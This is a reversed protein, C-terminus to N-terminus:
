ESEYYRTIGATHAVVTPTKKYATGTSPLGAVKEQLFSLVDKSKSHYQLNFIYYSALLYFLAVVVNSTEIMLEQKVALFYQKTVDIEEEDSFCVIHPQNNSADPAENPPTGRQTFAFSM